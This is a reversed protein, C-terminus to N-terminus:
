SKRKEEGGFIATAIIAFVIFGAVLLAGIIWAPFADPFYRSFIVASLGLGSAVIFGAGLKQLINRRESLSM